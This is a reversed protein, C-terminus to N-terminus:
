LFQTLVEKVTLIILNNTPRCHPHLASSGLLATPIRPFQLLLLGVLSLTNLPTSTTGAHRSMHWSLRISDINWGALRGQPTDASRDVWQWDRGTCWLSALGANRAWQLEMISRSQNVKSHSLEYKWDPRWNYKIPKKGMSFLDYPPQSSRGHLALKVTVYHRLSIAYYVSLNSLLSAPFIPHYISLM